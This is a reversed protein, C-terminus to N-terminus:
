IKKRKRKRKLAEELRKKYVSRSVGLMKAAKSQNGYTHVILTLYLTEMTDRIVGDMKPFAGNKIVEEQLIAEISKKIIPKHFINEKM